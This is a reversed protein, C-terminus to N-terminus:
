LGNLLGKQRSIKKADYIKGHSWSTEIALFFAQDFNIRFSPFIMAFFIDNDIKVQKFNKVKETVSNM